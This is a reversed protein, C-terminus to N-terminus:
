YVDRRVGAIAKLISNMIEVHKVQKKVARRLGELIKERKAKDMDSFFLSSAVHKDLLPVLNNKIMLIKNLRATLKDKGIM